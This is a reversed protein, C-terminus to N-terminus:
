STSNTLKGFPPWKRLPELLTGGIAGVENFSGFFFYRKAAVSEGIFTLVGSYEGSVGFGQLLRLGLLLVVIIITPHNTTPMLGMGVTAITMITVSLVVAKKRGYTDGIHGFVLSGLPRMIFGTVFITFILLLATTKNQTPFFIKALVPALVGVCDPLENSTKFVLFM